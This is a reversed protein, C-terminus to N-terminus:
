HWGRLREEQPEPYLYLQQGVYDDPHHLFHHRLLTLPAIRPLEGARYREILSSLEQKDARGIRRKLYGALQRLVNAHRRRTARHRLADTFGTLYERQIRALNRRNVGALRQSLDRRHVPSHAMLILEHRTHFGLLGAPTPLRAFDQWRHYIFVHELFADRQEAEDLATEEAMPLGPLAKRIGLAQLGSGRRLGRGPVRVPTSGLGCSPSRSKLIYGSIGELDGISQAAFARLARTVNLAPDEVGVAQPTAPDGILCIPPRPVGLGIAAEPCVPILDFERKLTDSIFGHRKHGGDYRVAQGLLCSSV